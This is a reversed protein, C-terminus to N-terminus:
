RQVSQLTCNWRWYIENHGENIFSRLSSQKECTKFLLFGFQTAPVIYIYIPCFFLRKQKLSPPIYSKVKKKEKTM